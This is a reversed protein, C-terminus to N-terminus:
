SVGIAVTFSSSIFMSHRPAQSRTHEAAGCVALLCLPAENYACWPGDFAVDCQLHEGASVGVAGYRAVVTGLPADVCADISRQGTVLCCLFGGNRAYPYKHGAAVACLLAEAGALAVRDCAGNLCLFAKVWVCVAGESALVRCSPAKAYGRAEGDSDVLRYPYAEM